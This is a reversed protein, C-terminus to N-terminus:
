RFANSLGALVIPKLNSPKFSCKFLFHYRLVLSEYAFTWVLDNQLFYAIDLLLPQM